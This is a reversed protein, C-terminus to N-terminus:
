GQRRLGGRQIRAASHITFDYQNTDTVFLSGNPGFSPQYSRTAPNFSSPHPANHETQRYSQPESALGSVHSNALRDQQEFFHNFGFPDDSNSIVPAAGYGSSTQGYRPQTLSQQQNYLTMSALVSPGHDRGYESMGATILGSARSNVTASYPMSAEPMPYNAGLGPFFEAFSDPM